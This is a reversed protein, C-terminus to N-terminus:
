EAEFDWTLLILDTKCPAAHQLTAVSCNIGHDIMLQDVRSMSVAPRNGTALFVDSSRELPSASRSVHPTNSRSPTGHNSVPASAALYLAHENYYANYVSQIHLSTSSHDKPTAVALQTTQADARSNTYATLPLALRVSSSAFEITKICSCM